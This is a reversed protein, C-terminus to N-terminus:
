KKKIVLPDYSSGDISIIGYKTEGPKVIGNTLNYKRLEDQFNRNAGGAVLMNGITIGPGVVLGIPYSSTSNDKTINLQLFTLLLYPLYTLTNQKITSHALEPSILSLRTAGNYFDYNKGFEINEATNNTIKVAVIRMGRKDEKKALRNNGRERLVGYRYSMDISDVNYNSSYNLTEPSITHYRKACNTALFISITALFVISKRKM